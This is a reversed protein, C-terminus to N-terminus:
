QTAYSSDELLPMITDSLDRLAVDRATRRHSVLEEIHVAVLHIRFASDPVTFTASWKGRMWSSVPVLILANGVRYRSLYAHIQYMDERSVGHTSGSETVRKWKADGLANVAKLRLFLFDPKLRIADTAQLDDRLLFLPSSRFSTRLDTSILAASLIKRLSREFLHQMTFLMSFSGSEGAFTPDASRGAILMRGIEVTRSWAAEHRSLRLHDFDGPTMHVSRVASMRTLIAALAQRNAGSRTLEFLNSSIWKIARALENDISLPSHRVPIRAGNAPLRTSLKVFDIKGKVVATDEAIETYRRPVGDSFAHELGLVVERILAELPDRRSTRVNGPAVYSSTLYGAAGLINILFDSDRIVEPTDTKPLINIRTSGLQVCGVVEAAHLRGRKLRFVTFPTADNVRLLKAILRAYGQGAPIPIEMGEWTTFVAM